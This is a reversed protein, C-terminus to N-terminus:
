AVRRETSEESEDGNDDVVEEIRASRGARRTRDVLIEEPMVSAAPPRRRRPIERAIESILKILAGASFLDRDCTPTCRKLKKAVNIM